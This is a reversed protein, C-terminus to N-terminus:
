RRDLWAGAAAAVDPTWEHAAEYVLPEVRTGRAGLAAVDADHKSATYWEDTRGRALLSPPFRITPDALLEPPVDGGVAIVGIAPPFAGVAARFAMAVGQSFGIHVVRTSADCPVVALAATVYVINDAIAAERDERTMWSAAIEQSRGRYFRHLGQIAILTWADAGPIADMRALQIAANEMYAHFGALVGRWPEARARRVLVRGHTTTAISHVEGDVPHV